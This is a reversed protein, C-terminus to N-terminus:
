EVNHCIISCKFGEYFDMYMNFDYASFFNNRIEGWEMKFIDINEKTIDDIKISLNLYDDIYEKKDDDDNFETDFYNTNKEIEIKVACKIAKLKDKEIKIVEIKSMIGCMDKYHYEMIVVYYKGCNM